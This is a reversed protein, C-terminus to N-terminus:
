LGDARYREGLKQSAILKGKGVQYYIDGEGQEIRIDRRAHEQLFPEESIASQM